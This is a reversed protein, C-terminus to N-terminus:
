RGPGEDAALLLEGLRMEARQQMEWADAMLERNGAAQAWALMASARDWAGKAEAITTAEVVINGPPCPWTGEGWTANILRAFAAQRRAAGRQRKDQECQRRNTSSSAHRSFGNAADIFRV